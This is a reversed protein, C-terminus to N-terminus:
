EDVRLLSAAPQKFRSGAEVDEHGKANMRSQLKRKPPAQKKVEDSAPRSTSVGRAMFNM